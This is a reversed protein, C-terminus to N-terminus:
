GEAADRPGAYLASMWVHTLTDVLADEDDFPPVGGAALYYLREGLWTLAAALAAPDVGPPPGAGAARDAELRDRTVATYGDMQSRWLQALAPDTQWNEVIARLVPARERWLRAGGAIGQRVTARVDTAAEHHLWPEAEQHGAGVACRVLEALVEHKGAFYFYFSGRSVGAEALIDAVSLEDFRHRGLLRETAELIAGRVDRGDDPPAARDRRKM